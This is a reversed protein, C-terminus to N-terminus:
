SLWDSRYATNMDREKGPHFPLIRSIVPFSTKDVFDPLKLRVLM